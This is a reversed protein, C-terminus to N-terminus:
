KSEVVSANEITWSYEIMFSNTLFFNLDIEDIFVLYFFINITLNKFIIVFTKM